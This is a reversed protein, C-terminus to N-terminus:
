GRMGLRNRMVPLGHLAAMGSTSPLPTGAPAIFIQMGAAGGAPGPGPGTGPMLGGGLDFGDVSILPLPNFAAAARRRRGRIKMKPFYRPQRPLQGRSM